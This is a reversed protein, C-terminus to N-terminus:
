VSARPSWTARRRPESRGGSLTASARPCTTSDIGFRGDLAVGRAEIEVVLGAPDVVDCPSM